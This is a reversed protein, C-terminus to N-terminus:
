VKRREPPQISFICYNFIYIFYGSFWQWDTFFVILIVYFYIKYRIDISKYFSYLLCIFVIIGILGYNLLTTVFVNSYSSVGFYNAYQAAGVGWLKQWLNYEQFYSLNGLLRLKTSGMRSSDLDGQINILRKTIYNVSNKISNIQNYLIMFIFIIMLVWFLIKMVKKLSLKDKNYSIGYILSIVVLGLSAVLSTTLIMTVAFLAALKYEKNIFANIYVPLLYIGVYSAEQFIGNPRIDGTNIDIFGAWGDYKSLQLLPLRGNWFDIGMNGFIFQLIVVISAIIAIQTSYKIFKSRCPIKWIFMLFFSYILWVIINKLSLSTKISTSSNIFSFLTLFLFICCWKILFGTLKSYKFNYLYSLSGLIVIFLSTFTITFSSSINLVVYPDLIPMIAMCFATITIIFNSYNRKIMEDKDVSEPYQEM